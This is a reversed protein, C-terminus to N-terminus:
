SRTRVAHTFHTVVETVTRRRYRERAWPCGNWAGHLPRGRPGHPQQLADAGRRRVRGSPCGAAPRGPQAGRRVRALTVHPWFPRSEPEHLGRSALAGAIRDRMRGARAEADDLELALLRPRRRPVGVVAGPSLQPAPIGAVSGRALEWVDGARDPPTRRPVRLTLHLSEPAVARLAPDRAALEDAVRALPEHAEPLELALFLRLPRARRTAGRGGSLRSVGRRAAAAAAPANGRHDLPRPDRQPRGADARRAGADAGDARKACWCVTGVPKEETGGDPGAIGTIAIAVDAGFRELAGDAM